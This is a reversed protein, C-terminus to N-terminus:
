PAALMVAIFAAGTTCILVIAAMIIRPGIDVSDYAM